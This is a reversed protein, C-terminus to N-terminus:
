RSASAEVKEVQQTNAMAVKTVVAASAPRTAFFLAIAFFVGCLVLAVNRQRKYAHAKQEVKGTKEKAYNLSNRLSYIQESLWAEFCDPGSSPVNGDKYRQAMITEWERKYSPLLIPGMKLSM